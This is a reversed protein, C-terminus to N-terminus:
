KFRSIANDYKICTHMDKYKILILSKLANTGLLAEPYHEEIM